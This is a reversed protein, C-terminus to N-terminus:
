YLPYNGLNPWIDGKGGCAWGDKRPNKLIPARLFTHIIKLLESNTFAIKISNDANYKHPYNPSAKTFPTYNCEFTQMSTCFSFCLLQMRMIHSYGCHADVFSVIIMLFMSLTLNFTKIFFPFTQFHIFTHKCLVHVGCAQCVLCLSSGSVSNM